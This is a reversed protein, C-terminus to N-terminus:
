FFTIFPKRGVAHRVYARVYPHVHIRLDAVVEDLSWFTHIRTFDPIPFCISFKLLDKLIESGHTDLPQFECM